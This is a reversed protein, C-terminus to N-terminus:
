ELPSGYLKVVPKFKGNKVKPTKRQTQVDAVILALLDVSLILCALLHILWEPLETM